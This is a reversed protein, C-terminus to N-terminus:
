HNGINVICECIKFDFETDIDLSRVRPMVSARIKKTFLSNQTMLVDVSLVYVAGNIRYEKEYDQSRKGSLDVDIFSSDSSIKGAWATPHDLEVVSVVTDHCGTMKYVNIAHIIDDSNRLPSTPQLLVVTSYVVGKNEQSLVADVLVSASSATDSSLDSSRKHSFVGRDAYRDVINLIENDDSTVLITAGISTNLAAEVTWCLLPKGVLDLVNKRPLRKSGGRAPIVMLVRGLESM